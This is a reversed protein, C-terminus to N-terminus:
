TPARQFITNRGIPAIYWHLYYYYKYSQLSHTYFISLLIQLTGNSNEQSSQRQHLHESHQVRDNDSQKTLCTRLSQAVSPKCQLHLPLLPLSLPTKKSYYSLSVLSYHTLFTKFIVLHNLHLCPPLVWYCARSAMSALRYLQPRTLLRIISRVMYLQKNRM